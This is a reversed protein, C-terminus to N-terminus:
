NHVNTDLTAMSSITAPQVTALWSVMLIQLQIQGVIFNFRLIHQVQQCFRTAMKTM